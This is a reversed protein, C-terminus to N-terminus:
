SFYKVDNCHSAFTIGLLNCSLPNYISVEDTVTDLCHITFSQTGKRTAHPSYVSSTAPRIKIKFQLGDEIETHYTRSVRFIYQCLHISINVNM